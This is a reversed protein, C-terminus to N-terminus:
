PRNVRGALLSRYWHYSAKPTRRGTPFDVHVLGFRRSYGYAWEFNDLLSWVSYGRVDVGEALAEAVAHLHGDLYAVRDTDHVSGDPALADHEASGNETIHIPPLDTGYRDRLSVLLKRLAGPVVPWGMATHRVGPVPVAEFRNDTATRRAPDPERWPAARVTSPTYYNIGLFDMPASMLALDGERRFPRREILEGWTDAEAAAYRGKLLPDTWMLNRQTEARLAAAVDAAAPTAPSVHDLNLTIGAEQVGVARLAEMALGHGVLLHHAAALAPTGERAGPAHEGDAYGLFASCWPENLTIWRPVRDHLRSAVLETYEAFRQATDRSRWGGLDELPQPLDWHYLTVVPTVGADLLDDVLREYFDLGRPNVPGGGSPQIRPWAVSFRYTDVGLDALLAVDERHRHYHDCANDGSSGDLVAGGRRAFADWISPGRGDEETAGEIQYASTATGFEFDSPFATADTM